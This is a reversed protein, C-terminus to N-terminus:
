SVTVIPYNPGYLQGVFTKLDDYFRIVFETLGLNILLFVGSGYIVHSDSERFVHKRFPHFRAILFVAILFQIFGSFLRLYEPNLSLVGFFVIGYLVYSFGIMYIYAKSFIEFGNDVLTYGMYDKSLFTKQCFLRKGVVTWQQNSNTGWHNRSKESL